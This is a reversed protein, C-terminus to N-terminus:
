FRNPVLIGKQNDNRAKELLKRYENDVSTLRELGKEILIPPDIYRFKKVVVRGKTTTPLPKQRLFALRRKIDLDSSVTLIETIHSDVDLFDSKKIIGRELAIKLVSSFVFYRAVAEYGGWHNVQLNLYGRGLKAATELNICAIQGSSVTLGGLIELALKLEFEQLSYDVRDACLDPSSRELLGFHHYDIVRDVSFGRLQLIRPIESSRIFDEHGQDQSNELGVEGIVWDYVHSFAPHSVDHLLGAIQEEESAGLKKLLLMVGISHDYRSFNKLHYFEDPIGFQNLGKLRQMPPSNVLDVLVPAEMRYDGYIKHHGSIIIEKM